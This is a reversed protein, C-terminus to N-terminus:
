KIKREVKEKTKYQKKEWRKEEEWGRGQM